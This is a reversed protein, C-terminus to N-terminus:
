WGGGKLSDIWWLWLHGESFFGPSGPLLALSLPKFVPAQWLPRCGEKTIVGEGAASDYHIKQFHKETIRSPDGTICNPSLSISQFPFSRFFEFSWMKLCTQKTLDLTRSASHCIEHLLPGSSPPPEHLSNQPHVTSFGHPRACSPRPSVDLHSSRAM